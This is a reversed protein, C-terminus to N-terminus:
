GNIKFSRDRELVKKFNNELRECASYIFDAEKKLTEAWAQTELWGSEALKVKAYNKYVSATPEIPKKKLEIYREM